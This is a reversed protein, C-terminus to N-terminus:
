GLSRLDPRLELLLAMYDAEMRIMPRDKKRLWESLWAFRIALMLDPLVEWSEAAYSTSRKLRDVLRNVFPGTLSAPDEIGLCGLLNALDYIEPKVGCFEWDIVARISREGWIINIPHVDGHCFARPLRDLVPFLRKKLHAAFPRFRDAVPPEWKEMAAFLDDTYAAISFPPMGFAMAVPSGIRHFRILFDASADGRWADMVYAPRDLVVGGVYPCLQYLGHHILPLPDGGTDPLYPIVQRLGGTYLADLTRIIQRKRDYLSSHIRELVFLRHDESEVVRRWVTREPSGALPMDARWRVFPIAWQHAAAHLLDPSHDKLHVIITPKTPEPFAEAENRPYIAPKRIPGAHRKM